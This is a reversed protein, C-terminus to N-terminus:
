IKREGCKPIPAFSHEITIVCNYNEHVEQVLRSIEAKLQADTMRFKHPVVCDFIVNSHTPGKVMRLDHITLCEDISAVLEAIEHRVDNVVADSTVIPDFHILLNLGDRLFDREINDIVDHSELVDNEAAMEVHVSAFMRNPGYDHVMLDHTGLVGEYSLIRQRIRETLEEDPAKGLLPSLAEKTLGISSYLIFGAVLIGMWGDLELQTFRSILAALLVALTSICDNRSDMATAKLTSSGILKGVHLNFLMMWLKLLISAGLIGISLWSFVVPSPSIIKEASSQLLQFGIVIVLVAVVFGSLYEYRAHGYPHEEDASKEALKFGLLSIISSSADSLNNAADAIISVSGSLFGAIFKGLCLLLNCVIGVWGSLKGYATRVQPDQVNNRQGIFLRILLGTMLVECLFIRRM